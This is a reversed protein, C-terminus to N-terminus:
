VAERELVQTYHELLMGTVANEGFHRKAYDRMRPERMCVQSYNEYVERLCEALSEVNGPETLWGVEPQVFEEPGGSRTAIVPLGTALAEIVAVGFTERLSPLVFANAQWMAERVQERSLLGVFQVKHEIQLARSLAELEKRQPGDGGVDLYVDPENRFMQAFARILVDVGKRPTLLAVVLFKFPRISRARPPLTFFDTNVLNPVIELNVDPLYERLSAALSHSVAIVQAARGLSERICPEQWPFVLDCVYITSHETVLYPIGHKQAALMAAYGGWLASHAHLLDPKGFRRIYSDVLSIALRVWLRAGIRLRPINWGQIRYTPIGDEEEFRMQFHNRCIAQVSLVRLSLLEPYVVGMRVGARCLAEAQEKFFIGRTPARWTPYWSPVLLVHLKGM